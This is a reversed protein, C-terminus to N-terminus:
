GSRISIVPIEELMEIEEEGPAELDGDDNTDTVPHPTSAAMEQTLTDGTMMEQVLFEEELSDRSQNTPKEADAVNQFEESPNGADELTVAGEGPPRPNGEEESRAEVDDDVENPEQDKRSTEECNSKVVDESVQDESVKDEERLEIDSQIHPQEPNDETNQIGKEADKKYSDTDIEADREM